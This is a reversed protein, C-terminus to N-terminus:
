GVGSCVDRGGEDREPEVRRDKEKGYRDTKIEVGRKM